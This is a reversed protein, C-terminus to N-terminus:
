SAYVRAPNTTLMNRWQEDSIWDKIEALESRWDVENMNPTTTLGGKSSDVHPWDTGWLIYDPGADALAQIIGRMARIGESTRRHLASVKVYVKKARVLDLFAHFEPSVQDSPTLSAQHDALLVLSQLNTEYPDMLLDRLGRWVSFPMQLSIAWSYQRAPYSVAWSRIYHRVQTIDGEFSGNFGQMRVSRVGATHLSDIRENSFTTVDRGHAMTTILSARFFKTPYKRQAEKLQTILGQAGDEPAAQVLVYNQFEPNKAVLDDITAQEPTYTRDPRFPFRTPDLVHVHCDWSTAPLDLM